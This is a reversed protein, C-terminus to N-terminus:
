ILTHVDPTNKIFVPEPGSSIVGVGGGFLFEEASALALAISEYLYIIM